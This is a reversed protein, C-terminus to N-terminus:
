VMARLKKEAKSIAAKLRQVQRRLTNNEKELTSTKKAVAIERARKAERSRKAALNNRKRREWYKEDRGTSPNPSARRSKKASCTPQFDEDDDDEEEEAETDESVTLKDDDGFESNAEAAIDLPKVYNHDTIVSIKNRTRLKRKLSNRRVDESSCVVEIAPEEVINTITDTTDNSSYDPCPEKLSDETLYPLKGSREYDVKGSTSPEFLDDLLKFPEGFFDSSLSSLNGLSQSAVDHRLQGPFAVSQWPEDDGDEKIKIHTYLKSPFEGDFLCTNLTDVLNSSLENEFGFLQPDSENDAVGPSSPSSSLGSDEDDDFGSMNKESIHFNEIGHAQLLEM